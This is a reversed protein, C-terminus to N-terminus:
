ERRDAPVQGGAAGRSEAHVRTQGVLLFDAGDQLHLLNGVQWRLARGQAVPDPHGGCRYQNEPERQDGEDVEALFRRGRRFDYTEGYKKRLFPGNRM